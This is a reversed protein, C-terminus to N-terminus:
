HNATMLRAIVRTDRFQNLIIKTLVLLPTSLVAGPIGWVFAWFVLSAIVFVTSISFSHGMFTPELINGIVIQTLILSSAFLIILLTSELQIIGLLIPPITAVISGVTPVFNFTFAIFGWFLPFDVGFSWCILGFVAGTSLSIFLKVKMYQSISSKISNFVNLWREADKDAVVYNIFNAYNLVGGLLAFFYISTMFLLTGFSGVVSAVSSSTSILWDESILNWVDGFVMDHDFNFTVVMWQFIPDIRSQLQAALKDQQEVIQTGTTYIINGFGLVLYFSVIIILIVSITFPIRRENLWHLMPEILLVIFIALALPIFLTSLVNMVYIILAAGIILLINKITRIDNEMLCLMFQFAALLFPLTLEIKQTDARKQIKHSM